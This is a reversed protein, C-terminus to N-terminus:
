LCFLQLDLDSLFTYLATKGINNIYYQILFIIHFGIMCKSHLPTKDPQPHPKTWHPKTRHPKTLTPNQGTPNQGYVLFDVESPNLLFQKGKVHKHIYQLMYSVM